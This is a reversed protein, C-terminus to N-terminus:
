EHMYARMLESKGSRRVGINIKIDPTGIRDLLRQM